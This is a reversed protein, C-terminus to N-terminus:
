VPHPQKLSSSEAANLSPNLPLNLNPLPNLALYLTPTPGDPLGSIKIKRKIKSKIGNKIM